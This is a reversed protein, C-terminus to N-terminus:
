LCGAAILQSLGKIDTKGRIEFRAINGSAFVLELESDAAFEMFGPTQIYFFQVKSYPLSGFSKKVGTLGQVDVSIIRKNTFVLQDRVTSFAYEIKEGPILMEQLNKDVKSVNLPTLNFVSDKNFNIAM